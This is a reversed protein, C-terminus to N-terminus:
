RMKASVLLYIVDTALASQMNQWPKALPYDEHVISHIGALQQGLLLVPMPVEALVAQLQPTIKRAFLIM